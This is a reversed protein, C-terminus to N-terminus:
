KRRRFTYAVGLVFRLRTQGSDALHTRLLDLKGRAAWHQSLVYDAGGGLMWSYATDSASIEGIGVQSVKQNLYTGGFQFEGFPELDFRKIRKTAFFIRPGILWNQMHSKVSILGASTFAFNGLTSTDDPHDYDFAISVRRSFWLSAGVNFGDLGNDGTSHVWGGSIELNRKSLISESAQSFVQTSLLVSFFLLFFYASKM